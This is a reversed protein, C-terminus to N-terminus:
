LEKEFEVEEFKSARHLFIAGLIFGVIASVLALGFNSSAVLGLITGGSGLLLM